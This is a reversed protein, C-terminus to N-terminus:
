NESGSLRVAIEPSCVPVLDKDMLHEAVLDTYQGLVYRVCVDADGLVFDVPKAIPDLRVQIQLFQQTFRGLHQVM